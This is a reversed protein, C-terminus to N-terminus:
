AANAFIESRVIPHSRGKTGQEIVGRNRLRDMATAFRPADVMGSRADAAFVAPAYGKGTTFFVSWGEASAMDLLELFLREDDVAEADRREVLGETVDDACAATIKDGDEDIGLDVIAIRFAPQWDMSGNRNKGLKGTVVGTAEDGTLKLQMDLAGNFLSHGRPTDGGSKTDHHIFVVAAGSGALARGVSVVGSMAEASNEELSPFATALTDIVIMSPRREQVEAMLRKFDRGKESKLDSVGDVLIFDPADGYRQRLAKARAAMGAADEAAVYFVPGKRTRRGFAREGRAVKLALYPAILSKGVGPKGFICAVDGRALVGKVIYERATGTDADLEDLSRFRLGGRHIGPAPNDNAPTAEGGPPVWDTIEDFDLAVSAVGPSNEAYSYAHGIVTELEDREWPPCCRENWSSLLDMLDLAVGDSVGIDRLNCAVKYANDNGGQGQISAPADALYALAQDVAIDTDLEMAAPLETREPRATYAASIANVLWQPIPAIAADKVVRYPVGDITSGPAVVLGGKSRVDVGGALKGASNAVPSGTFYFHRSGTPSITSFTNDLDAAGAGALERLNDYGGRGDKEDTDIVILDSTSVGINREGKGFWRALQEPDLTAKAQWDKISSLKSNPRLPFLRLGREALKTAVALRPTM